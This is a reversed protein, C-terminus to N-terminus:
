LLICFNCEILHCFNDFSLDNVLNIFLVFTFTSLYIGVLENFLLFVSVVVYM